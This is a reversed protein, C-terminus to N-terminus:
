TGPQHPIEIGAALLVEILQDIRAVLSDHQSNVLTHVVHLERRITVLIVTATVAGLVIVSTSIGVAGQEVLVIAIVAMVYVVTVQWLSYAHVVRRLFKM